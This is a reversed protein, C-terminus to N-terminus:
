VMVTIMYLLHKPVLNLYSASVLTAICEKGSMCGQNGKEKSKLLPFSRYQMEQTLMVM